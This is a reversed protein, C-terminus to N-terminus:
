TAEHVADGAVAKCPVWLHEGQAVLDSAVRADNRDVSLDLFTVLQAVGVLRM